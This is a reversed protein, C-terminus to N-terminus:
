RTQCRAQGKHYARRVRWARITEFGVGSLIVVYPVLMGRSRVLTGTSAEVLALILVLGIAAAVGHAYRLDRKRLLGLLGVAALAVLIYWLLMEPITAAQELSRPVSWPFPAFLSFLL